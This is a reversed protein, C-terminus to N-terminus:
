NSGGGTDATTWLKLGAYDPQVPTPLPKQLTADRQAEAGLVRAAADANLLASEALLQEDAAKSRVASQGRAQRDSLALDDVLARRRTDMVQNQSQLQSIETLLAQKGSETTAGKFQTWASALESAISARTGQENAIQGRLLSATDSDEAFGAYLQPDRAQPQGFVQMTAGPGANGLLALAYSLQQAAGLAQWQGTLAAETQGGSALSGLAAEIDGLGPVAGVALRPDGAYTRLDGVTQLTGQAAALQNDLSELESAWDAAEAPNAIVTVFSTDAVGLFARACQTWGFLGIATALIRGSSMAFAKM